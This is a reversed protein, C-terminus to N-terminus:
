GGGRGARGCGGRHRREFDVDVALGDGELEAVREFDDDAFLADADDDLLCRSKRAAGPRFKPWLYGSWSCDFVLLNLHRVLPLLGLASALGAVAGRRLAALVARLLALVRRLGDAEFYGAGAVVRVAPSLSSWVSFYSRKVISHLCAAKLEDNPTGTEAKGRPRAGSALAISRIRLCARAM